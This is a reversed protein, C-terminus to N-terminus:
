DAPSLVERVEVDDFTAKAEGSGGNLSPYGGRRATWGDQRYAWGSPEAQGDAWVRGLLAGGERRLRFWYWRGPEWAFPYANGWRVGDDLVQVVGGSRFVLNYGFGGLDTALGVGVRPYDGGGWWDVRVRAVVESDEPYARDFLVAKTV